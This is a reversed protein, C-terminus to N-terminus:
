KNYSENQIQILDDNIKKLSNFNTVHLDVQGESNPLYYTNYIANIIHATQESYNNYLVKGNKDLEGNQKYSKEIAKGLLLLENVVPSLSQNGVSKDVIDSYILAAEIKKNIVQFSKLSFESERNEIIDNLPEWVQYLSSGMVVELKKESEKLNQNSVIMTISFILASIMILTYIMRFKM